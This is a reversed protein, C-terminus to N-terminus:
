VWGGVSIWGYAWEHAYTGYPVHMDMGTSMFGGMVWWCGEMSHMLCVSMEKINM